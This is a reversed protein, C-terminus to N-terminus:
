TDVDSRSFSWFSLFNDFNKSSSIKSVSSKEISGLVDEGEGGGGGREAV